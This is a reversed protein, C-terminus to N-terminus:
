SLRTSVEVGDAFPRGNLMESRHLESRYNGSARVHDLYDSVGGEAFGVNDAVLVAGSALLGRRELELLDPLYSSSGHDIFVLDFEGTLEPIADEGTANVVYARDGVGALELMARTTSVADPNAEVTFLEGGPELFRVMRLASYGFLSGLELVRKPRARRCAEDLFEGKEPGLHYLGEHTRSYADIEDLVSQM